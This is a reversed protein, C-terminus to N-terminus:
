PDKPLMAEWDLKVKVWGAKDAAYKFVGFAKTSYLAGEDILGDRGAQSKQTMFM